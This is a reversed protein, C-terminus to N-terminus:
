YTSDDVPGSWGYVNRYYLGPPVVGIASYGAGIVPVYSYGKYGVDDTFATPLGITGFNARLMLLNNAYLECRATTAGTASYIRIEVKTLINVANPWPIVTETFIPAAAGPKDKAIFRISGDNVLSVGFASGGVNNRLGAVNADIDNYNSFWAGCFSGSDILEPSGCLMELGFASVRQINAPTYSAAGYPTHIFGVPARFVRKSNYFMGNVVPGNPSILTAVEGGLGINASVTYASPQGLRANINLAFGAGGNPAQFWEKERAAGNVVSAATAGDIRM